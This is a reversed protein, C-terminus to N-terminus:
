RKVKAKFIVTGDKIKGNSFVKSIRNNQVYGIQEHLTPNFEEGVQPVIDDFQSLLGQEVSEITKAVFSIFDPTLEANEASLKIAHIREYIELWSLKLNKQM